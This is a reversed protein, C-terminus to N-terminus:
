SIAPDRLIIDFRPNSQNKAKYLNSQLDTTHPILVRWVFSFLLVIPYTVDRIDM